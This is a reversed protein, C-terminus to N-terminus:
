IHTDMICRSKALCCFIPFSTIDPFKRFCVAINWFDGLREKTVSLCGLYLALMVALVWLRKVSVEEQHGLYLAYVLIGFLPCWVFLLCFLLM